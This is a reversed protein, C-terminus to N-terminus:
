YYIIYPILIKKNVNKANIFKSQVSGYIKFSQNRNISTKFIAQGRPTMFKNNCVIWVQITKKDSMVLDSYPHKYKLIYQNDKSRTIKCEQSIFCDDMFSEIRDIIDKLYKTNILSKIRKIEQKSFYIDTSNKFHIQTKEFETLRVNQVPINNFFDESHSALYCYYEKVLQENNYTINDKNITEDEFLMESGKTKSWEFFPEISVKKLDFPLKSSFKINKSSKTFLSKKKKQQYTFHKTFKPLNLVTSDFYVINYKIM